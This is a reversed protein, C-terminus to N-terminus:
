YCGALVFNMIPLSIAIAIITTIFFFWGHFYAEKASIGEKGFILGAMMSGAPTGYACQMAFYAAFFFTIPNGGMSIVIPAFIPIFVAGMVINHMFQTLIGIVLAVVVILVNVNMDGILGACFASITATVGAETSELGNCLPITVAVLMITSWTIGNKFCNEMRCYPKGEEDRWFSFFTVYLICFGVLGWNSFMTMINGKFVSPLLLGLIFLALAIIGVKEVKNMKYTVFQERIEETMTFGELKMKFVFRYAAIMLVFTIISYLLGVIIWEIQPLAIGTSSTLFSGFMLAAPMWPIIISGTMTTYLILAYVMNLEKDDNKIGNAEAIQGTVQWLLFLGAFGGNFCAMIFGCAAMGIILMWPKGMLFKRSMIWYAIARSVGIDTLCQAFVFSMLTMVVTTNALGASIGMLSSTYGTLGILFFGLVSTILLDICCWGYVIGLFVGLMKMGFPTIQGFPPLMGVGFTILLMIAIHVYTKMNNKAVVTGHSM